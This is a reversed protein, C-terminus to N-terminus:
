MGMRILADRLVTASVPKEYYYTAGLSLAKEMVEPTGYGTILIVKIESKKRKAYRIVDFGSDASSGSLKLDTIVFQYDGVELLDFAEEVTEATDVEVGGRQIIKKFGFLIATEDDVILVRKGPATGNRVRGSDSGDSAQENAKVVGARVTLATSSPQEGALTPLCIAPSTQTPSVIDAQKM